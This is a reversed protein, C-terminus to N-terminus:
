DAAARPDLPPIAYRRRLAELDADVAAWFDWSAAFVDTTV